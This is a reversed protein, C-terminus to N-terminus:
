NSFSVVLKLIFSQMETDTLRDFVKFCIKVSYIIVSSSLSLIHVKILFKYIYKKPYTSANDKNVSGWTMEFQM